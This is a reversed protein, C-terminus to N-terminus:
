PKEQPHLKRWQAEALKGHAVSSTLVLEMECKPCQGPKDSVVDAHSAMPCTYLKPTAVAPVPPPPPSMVPIVTMGGLPCKGPKAAHVSAHEPMPCTYHLLKGCPPFRALEASNMPILAM